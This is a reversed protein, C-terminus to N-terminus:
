VLNNLPFNQYEGKEDMSKNELPFKGFCLM